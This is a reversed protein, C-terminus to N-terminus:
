SKEILRIFQKNKVLDKNDYNFYKTYLRLKDRLREKGDSTYNSEDILQAIHFIIKMSSEYGNEYIVPTNKMLLEFKIEPLDDIRTDYFLLIQLNNETDFKTFDNDLKSAILGSNLFLFDAKEKLFMENSIKDIM